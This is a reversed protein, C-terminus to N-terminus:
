KLSPGGPFKGLHGPHGGLSFTLFLDKYVVMFCRFPKHTPWHVAIYQSTTVVIPTWWLLLLLFYTYWDKLTVIPQLDKYSCAKNLFEYKSVMM